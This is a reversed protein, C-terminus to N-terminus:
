SILLDPGRGGRLVDHGSGGRLRDAGRGGWLRDDGSGGHLRDDGSGGRLRDAGSSGHLRDYGSGGRVVDDGGGARVTDNGSGAHIVDNGAGACIVDDGGGSRITVDRGLAVIVDPGATGTSEHQDTAGVITASRGDCTPVIAPADVSILVTATAANGSGDVARYVFSDDGAYGGSPNYVFSGDGNLSLTGHAPGSVRGATLADGSPASAGTLVGSRATVGLTQDRGTSYARDTATVPNDYTVEVQGDGSRVGTTYSPSLVSGAAYSSGGGGGGWGAGAGNVDIAGGGGQGGGIYGGGGGGGAGLAGGGGTL